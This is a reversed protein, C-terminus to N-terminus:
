KEEKGCECLWFRPALEIKFVESLRRLSIYDQGLGSVSSNRSLFIIIFAATPVNEM